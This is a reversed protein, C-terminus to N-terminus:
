EQCLISEKSDQVRKGGRYLVRKELPSGSPYLHLGLGSVLSRLIEVALPPSTPSHLQCDVKGLRM